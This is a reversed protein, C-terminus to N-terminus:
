YVGSHQLQQQLNPYFPYIIRRRLIKDILSILEGKKKNFLIITTDTKIKSNLSDFFGPLNDDRTSKILRDTLGANLKRLWDVNFDRIDDINMQTAFGLLDQLVTATARGQQDLSNPISEHAADSIFNSIFVRAAHELAECEVVLEQVEKGGRFGLWYVRPNFHNKLVNKKLGDLTERNTDTGLNIRFTIRLLIWSLLFAIPALIVVIRVILPFDTPVSIAIVGFGALAATITAIHLPKLGFPEPEILTM